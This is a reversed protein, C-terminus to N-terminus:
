GSNNSKHSSPPRRGFFSGTASKKEAQHVSETDRSGNNQQDLVQVIRVSEGKESGQKTFVVADKELNHSSDGRGLSTDRNGGGNGKQNKMSNGLVADIMQSTLRGISSKRAPSQEVKSSSPQKPPILGSILSGKGSAKELPLYRKITTVHASIRQHSYDLDLMFLPLRMIKFYLIINWFVTQHERLFAERLVVQEGKHEVINIYEKYLSM